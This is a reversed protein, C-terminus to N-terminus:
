ISKPLDLHAVFRVDPKDIGMGFAITAVMVIGDERLFREQHHSRVQTSMGAHYPIANVSKGALWSATEEVKKRSMCYVIGADGKHESQIFDLLQAKGSTRDIVQYRINPRDFSSIFTKAGILGLREIIENRTVTDATATLAMRPVDPFREQLISLQIYEPRFDHGWQSVCHAEDIAFLALPTSAMLGLFRPTLLREPAVYLLDYQGALLNREVDAAEEQTLSSNLFAARVGLEHLAVVQNQMLAILPSVVVAVGDRMLAPIQYCLSKGGGTPMLVLCDGGSSIHSIVEAQQGRFASYGFIDKLISPAQSVLSSANFANNPSSSM